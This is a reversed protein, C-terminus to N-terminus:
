KAQSTHSQKLKKTSKSSGEKPPRGIPRKQKKNRRRKEAM